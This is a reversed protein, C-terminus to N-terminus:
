LDVVDAVVDFASTGARRSIGLQADKGKSKAAPILVSEKTFLVLLSLRNFNLIFFLSM